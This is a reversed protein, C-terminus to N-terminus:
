KISFILEGARVFKAILLFPNMASSYGIIRMQEVEFLEDEVDELYEDDEVYAEYADRGTKIEM